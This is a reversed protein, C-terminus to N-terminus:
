RLHQEAFTRIWKVMAQVDGKTFESPHGHDANNRIDAKATIEKQTLLNYVQNRALDSNLSDIKTKEAVKIQHRACLKRLTDELVAGALSAAPIHYGAELLAEAQELFDGLLEAAILSRMDVLLGSEIDDHAAEAIGLCRSFHSTPIGGADAVRQLERSHNSGDGCARSVLNSVRTFFKFYIEQANPLQAATPNAFNIHGATERGENILSSLEHLVKEQM